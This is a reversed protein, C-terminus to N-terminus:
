ASGDKRGSRNAHLARLRHAAAECYAEDLEIGVARRGVEACAALTSGSGAFPDLVLAGPVTLAEVLERMLALPKETPHVAATSSVRMHSLVTKPRGSPFEFRGKSAFWALDHRPAFTTKLDGLGHAQRDWVVQSRITYGAAETAARFLEAGRWEHFSLLAGGDSTIRHADYLWWIFPRRDNGIKPRRQDEDRRTSQFDMGYPPDSLVAAFTESPLVRLVDLCDAHYLVVAEDEYYPAPLGAPRDLWIM